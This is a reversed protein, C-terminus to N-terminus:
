KIAGDHHVSSGFLEAQIVKGLSQPDLPEERCTSIVLKAVGHEPWTHLAVHSESLLAVMTFGQPQFRHSVQNLKTLGASQILREICAELLTVDNLIAADATITYVHTQYDIPEM